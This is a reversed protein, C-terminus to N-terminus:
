AVDRLTVIPSDWFQEPVVMVAPPPESAWHPLHIETRGHEIVPLTARILHMVNQRDFSQRVREAFHVDSRQTMHKIWEIAYLVNPLEFM